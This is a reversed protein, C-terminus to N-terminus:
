LLKIKENDKSDLFYLGTIRGGSFHAGLLMKRYVALTNVVFISPEWRNASPM